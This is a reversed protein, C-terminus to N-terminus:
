LPCFFYRSSLRSYLISRCKLLQHWVELFLKCQRLYFIGTGFILM